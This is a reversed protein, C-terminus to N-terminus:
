LSDKGIVIFFDATSNPYGIDSTTFEFNNKLYDLTNPKVGQSNNYLITQDYPTKGKFGTLKLNVGLDSLREWDTTVYTKGTSNQVEITAAEKKVKALITARTLFQHIDNFTKGICPLVVYLRNDVVVPETPETTEPTDTATTSPPTSKKVVPTPTPTPTTTASSTTDETPTIPEPPPAPKGTVPDVLASCLLSGDPDLSFSYFNNSDIQKAIDALRKLEFPELNTRFNQTFDSLLNNITSLSTLKLAIIKNRVAAIVKKQRESRAFDSGENNDGSHRSRVFILATRGDMHQPGKTFTVPALYGKTDNPYDNPFTADTFTRDVVVDVGGIDNIAKVFGTFDVVAYYPISLGTIDEAAHEAALGASDEDEKFAYAYVANIKNFGVKPIQYEFDRPISILVVENTRVNISAVMMTDTLHAGDHGEGGIGMLLINVVGQDEGILQKDSALLLGSIRSFVNGNGTFIQNASTLIKGGFWLIALLLLGLVIFWRWKRKRKPPPTPTFNAQPRPPASRTPKIVDFSPM